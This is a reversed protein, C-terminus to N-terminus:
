KVSGVGGDMVRLFCKLVLQMFSVIAEGTKVPLLLAAIGILFGNSKNLQTWVSMFNQCLLLVLHWRHM